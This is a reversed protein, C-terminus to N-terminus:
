SFLHNSVTSKLTDLVFSVKNLIWGEIVKKNVKNLDVKQDFIKPTNLKELDRTKARNLAVQTASTPRFFSM